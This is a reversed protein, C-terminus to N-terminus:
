QPPNQQQQQDHVQELRQLNQQVREEPNESSDPPLHAIAGPGLHDQDRTNGDPDERRDLAAVTPSPATVPIPNGNPLTLLLERPVGEHTVGVMIFNYGSGKLLNTLVDSPSRPGYVGYVRDSRISGNITMGSVDAVDKL